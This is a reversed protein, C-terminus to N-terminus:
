FRVGTKRLDIKLQDNDTFLIPLYGIEAAKELSKPSDDVFVVEEPHVDLKKFAVDFAEKHPKQFGIEGSIVIEDVLQAVGDRELEKRLESTANSLIAVKLGSHRLAGFLTLLDANIYRKSNHKRVMERVRKETAPDKDFVRAVEILLDEWPLNQVNGLHNCEYYAKQFKDFPIGMSQAIHRVINGGDNLGIVGGFDFIVAKIMPLNYWALMIRSSERYNLAWIKYNLASAFMVWAAYPTMLWAATQSIPYFSIITLIIFILMVIIEFFAPGVKKAGFFLPTWIGNLILQIIFPLLAQVNAAEHFILYASIGQLAYLVTWVPGFIWNPPNFSPKKLNAYWTPIARATFFAGSVGVAECVAIAIIIEVWSNM